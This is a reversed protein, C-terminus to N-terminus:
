KGILEALARQCQVDSKGTFSKWVLGTKEKLLKLAQTEDKAGLDKLKAKVQVLYSHKKSAPKTNGKKNKEPDDDTPIQFTKVYLYKIAGTIAKYVGKDGVDAGLTEIVGNIREGSEIDWFSYAVRVTVLKQKGLDQVELVQSSYTLLVQEEDLLPKLKLTVQTESLYKYKNFENYGDKKMAEVKKQINHLKKLIKAVPPNGLIIKGPKLDSPKDPKTEPKSDM